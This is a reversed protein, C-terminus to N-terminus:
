EIHMRDPLANVLKDFEANDKWDGQMCREYLEEIQKVMQLMSASEGKLVDMTAKLYDYKYKINLYATQIKFCETASRLLEDKTLRKLRSEAERQALETEYGDLSYYDEEYTDFGLMQMHSGKSIGAFFDNFNEELEWNDMLNCVTELESSLEVFAMRFEYEEEEDGDFADLLTDDQMMWRIDDCVGSMEYIEDKIMELNFNALISKRYRLNRAKEKADM